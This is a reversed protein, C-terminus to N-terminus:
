PKPGGRSVFGWATGILLGTTHAWNAISGLLGTWCLVFWILMMGVTGKNLVFGFRPNYKGQMWAFGLLGYIVGSMGGFYPSGQMVFQALNSAIGVVVVFSGLFLPGCRWEVMRGLDWMWLMNFVIHMIGFHIFIPTLLRWVEGSSIAEFGGTNPDTIFLYNLLQESSGLQSFIAVAISIGILIITVVPSNPKL